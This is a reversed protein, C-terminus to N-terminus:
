GKRLGKQPQLELKLKHQAANQATGPGDRTSHTSHDLNQVKGTPLLGQGELDITIGSLSVGPHNEEQMKSRKQFEVWQDDM